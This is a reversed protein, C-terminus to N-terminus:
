KEKRRVRTTLVLKKPGLRMLIDRLVKVCGAGCPVFTDSAEVGRVGSIPRDAFLEMRPSKVESERCSEVGLRLSAEEDEAKERLIPLDGSVGSPGGVDPLGTARSACVVLAM